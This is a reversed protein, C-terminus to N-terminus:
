VRLLDKVTAPLAPDAINLATLTLPDAAVFISPLLQLNRINVIIEVGPTLALVRSWGSDVIPGDQAAAFREAERTVSRALPGLLSAQQQARVPVPWGVLAVLLALSGVFRM